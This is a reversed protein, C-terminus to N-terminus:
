RKDSRWEVDALGTGIMALYKGGAGSTRRCRLRDAIRNAFFLQKHVLQITECLFKIM